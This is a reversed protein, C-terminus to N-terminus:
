RKDRMSTSSGTPPDLLERPDCDLVEAFKALSRLTMNARGQECHQVHQVTVEMEDALMQQTWGLGVRVEAIRRGVEAIM